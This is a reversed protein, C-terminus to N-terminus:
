ESGGKLSPQPPDTAEVKEISDALEKHEQEFMSPGGYMCEVREHNRCSNFGVLSLLFACVAGAVFLLRKKMKNNKTRGRNLRVLPVAEMM